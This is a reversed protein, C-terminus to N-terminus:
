SSGATTTHDDVVEDDEDNIEEVSQNIVENVLNTSLDEVEEVDPADGEEDGEIIVLQFM